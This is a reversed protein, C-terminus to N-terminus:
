YARPVARTTVESQAVAYDYSPPVARMVVNDGNVPVIMVAPAVPPQFAPASAAVVPASLSAFRPAPAVGPANFAVVEITRASLLEGHELSASHGTVLAAGALGVAIVAGVMAGTNGKGELHRSGALPIHQGNLDLWEFAVDMKGTRGWAGKGSRYTVVGQGHTGRPIVVQGQQIVDSVTSIGFHDGTKSTRTSVTADPTVVLETGPALYLSRLVPAAPADQAHLPAAVTMAFAAATLVCQMSKM